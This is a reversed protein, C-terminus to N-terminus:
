SGPSAAAPSHVPSTLLKAKTAEDEVKENPAVVAYSPTARVGKKILDRALQDEGARRITENDSHFVTVISTLPGTTKAAPTTWTKEFVLAVLKNLM